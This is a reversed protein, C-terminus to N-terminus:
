AKELTKVGRVKTCYQQLASPAVYASASRLIPQGSAVCVHANKISTKTRHIFVYMDYSATMENRTHRRSVRSQGCAIRDKSPRISVGGSTISVSTAHEMRGVVPPPSGPSIAHFLPQTVSTTRYCKAPLPDRKM